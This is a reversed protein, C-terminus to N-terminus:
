HRAAWRCCCYCCVCCSHDEFHKCFSHRLMSHVFYISGQLPPRGVHLKVEKLFADCQVMSQKSLKNCPKLTSATSCRTMLKGVNVYCFSYLLWYGYCLVENKLCVGQKLTPAPWLSFCSLRRAAQLWCGGSVPQMTVGWSATRSAGRMAGTRTTLLNSSIAVRSRGGGRNLALSDSASISTAGEYTAAKAMNGMVLAPMSAPGNGRNPGGPMDQSLAFLRLLLLLLLLLLLIHNNLKPHCYTTIALQWDM